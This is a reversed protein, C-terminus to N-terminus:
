DITWASSRFCFSRASSALRSFSFFITCDARPSLFDFSPTEKKYSIGFLIIGLPLKLQVKGNMFSITIYSYMNWVKKYIYICWFILTVQRTHSCFIEFYFEFPLFISRTIWMEITHSFNSIRYEVVLFSKVVTKFVRPRFAKELSQQFWQLAMQYRPEFHSTDWIHLRPDSLNQDFM